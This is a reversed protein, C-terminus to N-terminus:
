GFKDVGFIAPIDLSLDFLNQLKKAKFLKFIAGYARKASALYAAHRQAREYKFLRVDQQKVLRRVVKVNIHHSKQFIHKFVRALRYNKDTM